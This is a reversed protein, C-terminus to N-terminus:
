KDNINLINEGTKLVVRTLLFTKFVHKIVRDINEKM